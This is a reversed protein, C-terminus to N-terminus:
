CTNYGGDVPIAQGIVFAAQPSAFWMVTGAIEDARGMRGLPINDIIIMKKMRMNQM